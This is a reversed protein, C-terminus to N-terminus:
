AYADLVTGLRRGKVPKAEPGTVREAESRAPAAAPAPGATVAADALGKFTSRATDFASSALSGLSLSM